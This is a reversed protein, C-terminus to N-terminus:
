FLEDDSMRPRLKDHEIKTPPGFKKPGMRVEKAKKMKDMHSLISATKKTYLTLGASAGVLMLGMGIQLPTAAFSETTESPNIKRDDKKDHNM